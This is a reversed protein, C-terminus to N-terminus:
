QQDEVYMLCKGQDRVKQFSESYLVPELDTEFFNGLPTDSCACMKLDGNNTLYINIGPIKCDGHVLLPLKPIWEFGWVARDYEACKEFFNKLEFIPLELEAHNEGLGQKRFMMMHPVINSERAWKYIDFAEAINYTTLVCQIGLRNEEALGREKLLEINSMMKKYSGNVGTLYDNTEPKYGYMKGCVFLNKINTFADIIEDTLELLNSFITITGGLSSIENLMPILQPNLTPEGESVLFYNFLNKDYAFRSADKLFDIVNENSITRGQSFRTGCNTFCFICKLNCEHKSPGGPIAAAARLLKKGKRCNDQIEVPWYYGWVTNPKKSRM